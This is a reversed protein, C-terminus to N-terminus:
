SNEETLFTDIEDQLETDSRKRRLFRLWSM